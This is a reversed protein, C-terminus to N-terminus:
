SAVPGSVIVRRAASDDVCVQGDGVTNCAIVTANARAPGRKFEADTILSVGATYAREIGDCVVDPSLGGEASAGTKEQVAGALGERFDETGPLPGCAVHVQFVISGDPTLSAHKEIRISVDGQARAPAASAMAVLLLWFVLALVRKREM